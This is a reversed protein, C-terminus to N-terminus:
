SERRDHHLAFDGYRTAIALALTGFMSPWIEPAIALAPSLMWLM